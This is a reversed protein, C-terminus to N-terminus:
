IQKKIRSSERQYSLPKIDLPIIAVTDIEELKIKKVQYSSPKIVPIIPIEEM